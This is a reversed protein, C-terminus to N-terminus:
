KYVDDIDFFNSSCKTSAALFYILFNFKFFFDLIISIPLLSPIANFGKKFRPNLFTTPMSGAVLRAFNAFLFLILVIFLKKSL